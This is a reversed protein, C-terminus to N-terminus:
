QASIKSLILNIDANNENDCSTSGETSEMNKTSIYQLVLTAFLIQIKRQLDVAIKAACSVYYGLDIRCRTYFSVAQTFTDSLECAGRYFM